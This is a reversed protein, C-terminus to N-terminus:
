PIERLMQQKIINNCTERSNLYNELLPIAQYLKNKNSVASAFYSSLLNESKKRKFIFTKLEGSPVSITQIKKLLSSQEHLFLEQCALLLADMEIDLIYSNKEPSILSNSDNSHAVHYYRLCVNAFISKAVKMITKKDIEGDQKYFLFEKFKISSLRKSLGTNLMVEYNYIKKSIPKAKIVNNLIPLDSEEFIIRYERKNTIM